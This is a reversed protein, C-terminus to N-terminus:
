DERFIIHYGYDTRVPKNTYEGIELDLVADSFEQIMEEYEFYGVDGCSDITAKDTSYIEVLDCFNKGKNLEDIIEKAVSYDDVLIHKAKLRPDNDLNINSKYGFLSLVASIILIIFTIISIISNKGSNSNKIFLWKNICFYIVSYVLMRVFYGIFSGITFASIEQHSILSIIVSIILAGVISNTKFKPIYESSLPHKEKMRIIIPYFMFVFTYLGFDIITAVIIEFLNMDYIGSNVGILYASMCLILSLLFLNIIRVIKSKMTSNVSKKDLELNEDAITEEGDWNLKCSCNKCFKDGYNVLKECDPCKYEYNKHKM